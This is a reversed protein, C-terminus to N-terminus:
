WLQLPVDGPSYAFGFSAVQATRNLGNEVSTHRVSFRLTLFINKSHISRTLGAEASTGRYRGIDQGTGQMESYYTSATLSWLRMGTYSYTASVSNQRSAIYIGNGPSVGRNWAISASAKRFHRALQASVATDYNVSHFARLGQTRGIIAAVVPDITVTQLALAEARIGGVRLGATWRPSFQISYNLGVSHMNISGFSKNFNFQSFFYDVGVTSHRTLRYATDTRASVGTVSYLGSQRRRVTFGTVGFNFSLRASKMYTADAMGTFYSTRNNTLEDRPIQAFDPDYYGFTGGIANNNTFTGAGERVSFQFHPSVRHTVGLMLFQDTGSYYNKRNYRRYDGRYNVGVTTTKWQHYGYLGAAVEGGYLSDEVLKGSSDVAGGLAGGDYVADINIFPRFSIPASPSAGGGGGRSLISPGSYEGTQGFLAAAFLPVLCARPYIAASM